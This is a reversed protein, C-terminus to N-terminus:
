LIPPGDGPVRCATDDLQGFLTQLGLARCAQPLPQEAMVECAICAKGDITGVYLASHPQIMAMGEEDSYILAIGQESEQIILEHERFPFWFAPGAPPTAPPYARQFTSVMLHDELPCTAEAYLFYLHIESRTVGPPECWCQVIVALTRVSGGPKAYRFL